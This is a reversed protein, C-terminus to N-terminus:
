FAPPGEKRFWPYNTCAGRDYTGNMAYSSEGKDNTLRCVLQRNGGGLYRNYTNLTEGSLQRRQTSTIVDSM